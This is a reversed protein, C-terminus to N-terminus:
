FLIFIVEVLLDRNWAKGKSTGKWTNIIKRLTVMKLLNSLRLNTKGLKLNTKDLKESTEKSESIIRQLDICVKKL